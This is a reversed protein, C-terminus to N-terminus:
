INLKTFEYDALFLPLEAFNQAYVIHADEFHKVLTKSWENDEIFTLCGNEQMNDILLHNQNCFLNNFEYVEELMKKQEAACVVPRQDFNAKIFEFMQEPKLLATFVFIHKHQQMLDQLQKKM